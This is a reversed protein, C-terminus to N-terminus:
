SLGRVHHACRFKGNVYDKVGHVNKEDHWWKDWLDSSERGVIGFRTGWGSIDDAFAPIGARHMQMRDHLTAIARDAAAQNRADFDDLLPVIEKRYYQMTDIAQPGPVSVLPGTDPLPQPVPQKRFLRISGAILIALLVITFSRRLVRWRQSSRSRVEDIGYGIVPAAYGAPEPDQIGPKPADGPVRQDSANPM